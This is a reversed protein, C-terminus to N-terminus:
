GYLLGMDRLGRLIQRDSETLKHIEKGQANRLKSYTSHVNACGTMNQLLYYDQEFMGGSDPLCQYRECWWALKLDPPAPGDGRM